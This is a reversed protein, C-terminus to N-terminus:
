MSPSGTPLVTPYRIRKSCQTPGDVRISTIVSPTRTRRSVSSGPRSPTETTIKSSNWSRLRVVSTASARTRSARSTSRGSRFSTSMDAVMSAVERHRSSSRGNTSLWPFINGTSTSRPASAVGSFAASVMALATRSACLAYSPSMRAKRGPSASIRRQACNSPEEKPKVATHGSYPISDGASCRRAM